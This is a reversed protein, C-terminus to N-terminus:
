PPLVFSIIIIIQGLDRRVHKAYHVSVARRQQAIMPQQFSEPCFVKRHRTLRCQSFYIQGLFLVVIFQKSIWKKRGNKYGLFATKLGKKATTSMMEFSHERLLLMFRILINM